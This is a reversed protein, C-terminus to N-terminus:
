NAENFFIMSISHIINGVMLSVVVVHVVKCLLNTQMFSLSVNMDDYYDKFNQSWDPRAFKVRFARIGQVSPLDPSRLYIVYM